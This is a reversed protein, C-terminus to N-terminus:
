FLLLIEWAKSNALLPIGKKYVLKRLFQLMSFHHRLCVLKAGHNEAMKEVPFCRKYNEGQLTLM